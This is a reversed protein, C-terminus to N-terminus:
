KCLVCTHIYIPLPKCAELGKFGLVITRMCGGVCAVELNKRALNLLTCRTLLLFPPLILHM